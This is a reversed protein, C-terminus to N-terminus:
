NHTHNLQIYSLNTGSLSRSLTHGCRPKCHRYALLITITNLPHKRPCQKWLRRLRLLIDLLLLICNCITFVQNSEENSQKRSSAVKIHGAYCTEIYSIFQIYDSREIVIMRQLLMESDRYCYYCKVIITM